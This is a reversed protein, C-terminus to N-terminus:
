RAALSSRNIWAMSVSDFTCFTRRIPAPVEEVSM